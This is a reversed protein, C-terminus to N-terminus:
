EIVKYGALKNIAKTINVKSTAGSNEGLIERKCAQLSPFEKVVGNVEVKTIQSSGQGTTNSSTSTRAGRRVFKHLTAHPKSLTVTEKGDDDM